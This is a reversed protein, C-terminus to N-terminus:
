NQKSNAVKVEVKESWMIATKLQDLTHYAEGDFEFLTIYKNKHAWELLDAHKSDKVRRMEPHDILWMKLQENM